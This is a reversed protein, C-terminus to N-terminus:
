GCSADKWGELWREDVKTCDFLPKGLKNNVKNHLKCMWETLAYRSTTDVPDNKLDERLDQACQKCPYIRSFINMFNRMDNQQLDSPNDPYYAAISHLLSWSVRGLENKDLPCDKGSQVSGSNLKGKSRMFTKFDSCARCPREDSDGLKQNFFAEGKPKVSLHDDEDDYYSRNRAMPCSLIIFSSDLIEDFTRLGATLSCESM